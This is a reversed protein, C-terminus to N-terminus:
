IKERLRQELTQLDVNLAEALLRAAVGGPPPCEKHEALIGLLLHAPSIQSRGGAKAEDIALEIVRKARPAFPLQPFPETEAPPRIGLWEKIISSVAEYHVGLETLTQAALNTHEKLIGLLIGETGLVDLNIERIPIEGLRIVERTQPTFIKHRPIIAETIDGLAMSFIAKLLYDFEASSMGWDAAINGEQQYM